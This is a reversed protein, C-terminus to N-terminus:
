FTPPVAGEEGDFDVSGKAAWNPTAAAAAPAAARVCGVVAGAVLAFLVAFRGLRPAAGWMRGLDPLLCGCAIGRVPFRETVDPRAVPASTVGGPPRM